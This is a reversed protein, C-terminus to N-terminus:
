PLSTNTNVLNLAVNRGKLGKNQFFIYRKSSAPFIVVYTQASQHLEVFEGSLLYM